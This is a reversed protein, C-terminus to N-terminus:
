ASSCCASTKKSFPLAVGSFKRFSPSFRPPSQRITTFFSPNESSSHICIGASKGAPSLIRCFVPSEPDTGASLLVTTKNGPLGICRSHSHPVGYPAPAGTYRSRYLFPLFLLVTRYSGRTHSFEHFVVAPTSQDTIVPFIYRSFFQSPSGPPSVVLDGPKGVLRLFAPIM